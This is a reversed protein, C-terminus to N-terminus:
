AIRRVKIGLPSNGVKEVVPLDIYSQCGPSRHVLWTPTGTEPCRQFTDADHGALGLRLRQGRKLLASIPLLGFTIEAPQGPELPLADAQRYTHYPVPLNYPQPEASVRRHISRLQGETLYRVDGDPEVVELYVFFATDAHSSTVILSVVPYGGIELDAELPPSTYTLLHRAAERRGAYSVTHRDMAGLEWWRNHVGTTASFDVQYTDAGNGNSTPAALSLQQDPALFWRELRTGPPPFIESRQWHEAGLTYYHVAKEHAFGNDATKLYTDFFHAMEAWQGPGTPNPPTNLRQFPSAHYLGGHDWAGIVTRRTNAFTRARRLAADGTGGDMWSGWGFVAVESAALQRAFRHVSMDEMSVRLGRPREDRYTVLFRDHVLSGNAAHELVAEALMRRDRDNDVPRVGRLLLRGAPGFDPPILNQDLYADFEGWAQIFRRNFLGGPYAIDTYADPHNFMPIVAKVAPHGTIAFLEATSGLYSVGYSGVKGSCWPQAVVWDIITRMDDLLNAQWPYKWVGFSAGTGREDIYVLAYGYATLFPMLGRTRPSLVEPRLFWSFPPHLELERWYRTQILLAPLRVGAPLNRPLFITVALRTGDGAPVYLSYRRHGRYPPPPLTPYGFAPQHPQSSPM